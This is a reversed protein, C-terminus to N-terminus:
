KQKGGIVERIVETFDNKIVEKSPLLLTNIQHAYKGYKKRFEKLYLHYSELDEFAIFMVTSSTSGEGSALFIVNPDKKFDSFTKKTLQENDFATWQFTLVLFVDIGVKNLDIIPIYESILTGELKRRIRSCSSKSLGTEKCIVTDTINGHKLIANLFKKENMTLKITNKGM